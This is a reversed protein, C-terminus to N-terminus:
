DKLWNIFNLGNENNQFLRLGRLHCGFKAAHGNIYTLLLGVLEHCIGDIIYHLSSFFDWAEWAIKPTWSQFRSRIM